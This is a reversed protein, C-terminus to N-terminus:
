KEVLAQQLAPIVVVRCKLIDFAPRLSDVNKIAVKKQDGDIRMQVPTKCNDAVRPEQESQRLGDFLAIKLLPAFFFALPVLLLLMGKDLRANKEHIGEVAMGSGPDLAVDALLHPPAASKFSAGMDTPESAHNSYHNVDKDKAAPVQVPLQLVLFLTRKDFM